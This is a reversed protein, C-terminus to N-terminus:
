EAVSHWGGGGAGALKSRLSGGGMGVWVDEGPASGPPAQVEWLAREAQTNKGDPDSPMSTVSKRASAQLVARLPVLM